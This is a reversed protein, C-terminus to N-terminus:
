QGDGADGQAASPHEAQAILQRWIAREARFKALADDKTDAAVAIRPSDVAVALWGSPTKRLDPVDIEM